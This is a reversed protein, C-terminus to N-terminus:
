KGRWPEDLHFSMCKVFPESVDEVLKIKIYFRRNDINKKFQWIDGSGYKDMDYDDEPGRFYNESSLETIINEVDEIMLGYRTLKRLNVRPLFQLQGDYVLKRCRVLFSNIEEKSAQNFM